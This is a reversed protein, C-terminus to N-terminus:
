SSNQKDGFLQFQKSFLEQGVLIFGVGKEMTVQFWVKKKKKLLSFQPFVGENVYIGIKIKTSM